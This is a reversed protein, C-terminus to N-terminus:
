SIHEDSWEVIIKWGVSLRGKEEHIIPFECGKMKAGIHDNKIMEFCSEMQEELLEKTKESTAEKESCYIYVGYMRIM